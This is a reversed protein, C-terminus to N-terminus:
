ALEPARRTSIMLSIFGAQSDHIAGLSPEADVKALYNQQRLWALRLKADAEM